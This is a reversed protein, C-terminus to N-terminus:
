LCKLHLPYLGLSDLISFDLVKVQAIVSNFWLPSRRLELGKGRYLHEKNGEQM